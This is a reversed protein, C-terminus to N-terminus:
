NDERTLVLCHSAAIIWGMKLQSTETAKVDPKTLDTKRLSFKCSEWSFVWSIFYQKQSIYHQHDSCLTLPVEKGQAGVWLTEMM